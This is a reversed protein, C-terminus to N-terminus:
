TETFVSCCAAVVRWWDEYLNDSPAMLKEKRQAKIDNKVVLRRSGGVVRRSWLGLVALQRASWHM